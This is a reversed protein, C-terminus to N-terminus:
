RGGGSTPTAQPRAVAPNQQPYGWAPNYYGAGQYPAYPNYMAQPQAPVQAAGTQMQPMGGKPAGFGGYAGRNQPLPLTQPPGFYPYEPMAPMQFHAELPWYNYWPGLPPPQNGSMSGHGGPNCGSSIQIQAQAFSAELVLAAAALLLLRNM